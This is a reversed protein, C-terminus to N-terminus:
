WSGSGVHTNCRARRHVAFTGRCDGSALAATDIKEVGGEIDVNQSDVTPKREYTNISPPKSM